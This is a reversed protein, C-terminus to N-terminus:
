GAAAERRMRTMTMLIMMLIMMSKMVYIMMLGVEEVQQTPSRASGGIRIRVSSGGGSLKKTIVIESDDVTSGPVQRKNRQSARPLTSSGQLTSLTINV